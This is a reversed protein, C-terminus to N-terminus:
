DCGAEAPERRKHTTAVGFGALPLGFGRKGGRASWGIVPLGARAINCYRNCFLM